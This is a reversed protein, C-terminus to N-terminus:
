NALRAPSELLESGSRVTGRRRAYVEAQLREREGKEEEGEWTRSRKKTKTRIITIMMTDMTPTYANWHGRTPAVIHPPFRNM